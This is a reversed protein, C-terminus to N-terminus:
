RRRRTGLLGASLALATSSGPVVTVSQITGVLRNASGTGMIMDASGWRSPDLEMATPADTGSLSEIDSGIAGFTEFRANIVGVFPVSVYLGFYDHDDGEVLSNDEVEAGRFRAGGNLTMLDFVQGDIELTYSVIADDDWNRSGPEDFAPNSPDFGVTAMFADGLDFDAFPGQMPSGGSVVGTFTYTLTQASCVSSLAAIALMLRM